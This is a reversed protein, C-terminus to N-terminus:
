VALREVPAGEAQVPRDASFPVVRVHGTADSREVGWRLAEGKPRVGKCRVLEVSWRQDSERSVEASVRWRTRAASHAQLEARPRVVLGLTGGAEAALQLRRTDNFSLRRVDTVVAAVGGNRLALDVAWLQEDRGCPRLFLSRQLM